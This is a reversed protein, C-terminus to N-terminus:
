TTVIKHHHVPGKSSLDATEKRRAEKSVQREVPEVVPKAAEKADGAPREQLVDAVITAVEKAFQSAM